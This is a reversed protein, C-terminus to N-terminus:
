KGRRRLIKEYLKIQKDVSSNLDYKEVSSRANESLRKNLEKDKLLLVIAESIEESNMPDVTIGNFGNEIIETSSGYNTSIVPTGCALANRIPMNLGDWLVPLVFADAWSYYFTLEDQKQKGLFHSTDSLGLEESLKKIEIIREKPSGASGLHIHTLEPLKEKALTISKLITEINKGKVLRGSSLIKYPAALFHNPMYDLIKNNSRPYFHELNVGKPIVEIKKPDIEFNEICINKLEGSECILYDAHKIRETLRTPDHASVVLPAGTYEKLVIGLDTAFHTNFARIMSPNFKTSYDRIKKDKRFIDIFSAEPSDFSIEFNSLKQYKEEAESKDDLISKSYIGNFFHDELDRWNLFRVENFLNDGYKIPNFESFFDKKISDIYAPSPDNPIVLLKKMKLKGGEV